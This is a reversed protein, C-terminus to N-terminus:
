FLKMGLSVNLLKTKTTMGTYDSINNLGWEYRVDLSFKLVDIGAGAQIGWITKKLKEPPLTANPDVGNLQKSIDQSSVFSAVPGAMLRFNVVKLNILKVGVLVPVDITNLVTQQTYVQNPYLTSSQFNGGKKTFYVEPQLYIVPLNVRLFAGTLFGTKAQDKVDSINTFETPMKSSNFGIKVGLSLPLQAFINCSFLFVTVLVLTIKKM